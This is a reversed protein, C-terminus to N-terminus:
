VSVSYISNNVNLQNYRINESFRFLRIKLIMRDEYVIGYYIKMITIM